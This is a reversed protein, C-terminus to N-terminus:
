HDFCAELRIQIEVHENSPPSVRVIEGNHLEYFDYYHIDPNALFDQLRVPAAITSM